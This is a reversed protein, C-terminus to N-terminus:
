HACCIACSVSVHATTAQGAFRPLPPPRPQNPFIQNSCLDPLTCARRHPISRHVSDNRISSNPLCRWMAIHPSSFSKLPSGFALRAVFISNPKKNDRCTQSCWSDLEHQCATTAYRIAVALSTLTDSGASSCSPHTRLMHQLQKDRTCYKNSSHYGGPKISLGPLCRWLLAAPRSMPRGPHGEARRAVFLGAQANCHETCWRDITRRCDHAGSPLVVEQQPTSSRKAHGAARVIQTLNALLERVLEAPPPQEISSLM